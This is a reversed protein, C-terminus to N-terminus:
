LLIDVKFHVWAMQLDHEFKSHFLHTNMMDLFDNVKTFDGKQVEIKKQNEQIKSLIGDHLAQLKHNATAIERDTLVVKSALLSKHTSAGLFSNQFMM